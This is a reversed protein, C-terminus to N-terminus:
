CSPGVFAALTGLVPLCRGVVVCERWHSCRDDGVSGKEGVEGAIM